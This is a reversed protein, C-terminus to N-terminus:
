EISKVERLRFGEDRLTEAYRRWGMTDEVDEEIERKIRVLDERYVMITYDPHREM